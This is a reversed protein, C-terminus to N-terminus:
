ELEQSALLRLEMGPGRLPVRFSSSLAFFGQIRLRLVYGVNGGSRSVWLIGQLDITLILMPLFIDAASHDLRM